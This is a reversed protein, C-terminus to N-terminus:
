VNCWSLKGSKVQDVWEQGQQQMQGLAATSSGTPSTMSGLTKVVSSVPLHEIEALSGDALPVGIALDPRIINNEYIWTGDAKWKFSILYYSFKGPKLACGLAILLREWNIVSEQLRSRADLITEVAQMNVHVLDTDDVFLGGVIHNTIDSIPAILHAGHGKRKHAAIM